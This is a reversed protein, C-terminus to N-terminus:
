QSFVGPDAQKQISYAAARSNGLYLEPDVHSLRSPERGVDNETM